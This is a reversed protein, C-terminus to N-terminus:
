HRPYKQWPTDWPSPNRLAEGATDAEGLRLRMTVCKSCQETTRTPPWLGQTMESTGRSIKPRGFAQPSFAPPASKHVRSLDSHSPLEPRYSPDPESPVTGVAQGARSAPGGNGAKVRFEARPHSDWVPSSPFAKAALSRQYPHAKGRLVSTSPARCSVKSM